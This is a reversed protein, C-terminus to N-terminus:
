VAGLFEARNRGQAVSIRTWRFESANISVFPAAINNFPKGRECGGRRAIDCSSILYVPGPSTGIEGSPSNRECPFPLLCPSIIRKAICDM